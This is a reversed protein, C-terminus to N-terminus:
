DNYDRKLNAFFQSDKKDNIINKVKIKNNIFREENEIFFKKIFEKNNHLKEIERMIHIFRMQSDFHDDYGHDIIDDFFDFDYKERLSKVHYQTSLFIPIQTFYFPIYSKDTIHVINKEIFMTETVLNIYSNTYGGNEFTKPYDFDHPKDFDINEEYKSKKIPHNILFDIEPRFFELDEDSFLPAYFHPNLKTKDESNLAYDRLFVDNKLLSYDVDDLIGKKKLVILLGYRHIKVQRIHAMFLFDREKKYPHEFLSLERSYVHSLRDISFVNIDTKFQKKYRGLLYNNNIIYFQSPNLGLSKLKSDFYQLVDHNDNEYENMYLVNLNKHKLLSEYLKPSYPPSPCEGEYLRQISVTHTIIIYFMDNPYNPIDDYTHLQIDIPVKYFDIVNEQIYDTGKIYDSDIDNDYILRLIDGM